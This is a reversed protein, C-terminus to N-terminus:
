LNGSEFELVLPIPNKSFELFPFIVLYKDHDLGYLNLNQCITLIM